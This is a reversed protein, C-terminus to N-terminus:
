FFVKWWGFYNPLRVEKAEKSAELILDIKERPIIVLTEGDKGLSLKDRAEQEVFSPSQVEELRKRLQSNERVLQNLKDSALSVRDGSKLTNIIQGILNYAIVAMVLIGLILGIKKLM